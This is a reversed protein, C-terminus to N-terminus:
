YLSYVTNVEPNIRPFVLLEQSGVPTWLRIVVGQVQCDLWNKMQEDLGYRGLKAILIVQSVTDDAKVNVQSCLWDCCAILYKLSTWM